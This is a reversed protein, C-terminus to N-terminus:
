DGGDETCPGWRYLGRSTTLVGPLVGHMGFTDRKLSGAGNYLSKSVESQSDTACLLSSDGRGADGV